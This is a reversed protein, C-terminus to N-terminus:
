RVSTCNYLPFHEFLVCVYKTSNFTSNSDYLLNIGVFFFFSPSFASLKFRSIFTHTDEVFQRNADLISCHFPWFLVCFSNLIEFFFLCSVVVCQLHASLIQEWWADAHTAICWLWWVDVICCLKCKYPFNCFIMRHGSQVDLANCIGFNVFSIRVCRVATNLEIWKLKENM